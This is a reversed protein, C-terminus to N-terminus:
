FPFSEHRCILSYLFTLISKSEECVKDMSFNWLNMQFERFLPGDMILSIKMCTCVLQIQPPLPLFPVQVKKPPVWWWLDIKNVRGVTCKLNLIVILFVKQWRRRGCNLKKLVGQLNINYLQVKKGHVYIAYRSFIFIFPYLILQNTLIDILPATCFIVHPIFFHFGYRKIDSGRGRSFSLLRFDKGCMRM